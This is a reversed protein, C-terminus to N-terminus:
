DREHSYVLESVILSFTVSSAMNVREWFNVQKHLTVKFVVTYTLIDSRKTRATDHQLQDRAVEGCKSSMVQVNHLSTINLYITKKIKNKERQRGQTNRADVKKLQFFNYFLHTFSLHVVGKPFVDVGVTVFHANDLLVCLAVSYFFMLNICIIIEQKRSM